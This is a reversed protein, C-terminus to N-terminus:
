INIEMKGNSFVMDMKKIMKGIVMTDIVMLGYRKEKVTEKTMNGNVLINIMIKGFSSDKVTEKTM